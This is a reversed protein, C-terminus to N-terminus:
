SRGPTGEPSRDWEERWLAELIRGRAGQGTVRPPDGASPSGDVHIGGHGRRKARYMARDARDVLEKVSADPREAIAVGVSATLLATRKADIPIPEAFAAVLRDAVGRAEDVTNFSECLAGFEDGGIRALMDAPRIALRMRQSARILVNDGVQHGHRDNVQKFHDLDVYLLALISPQRRLRALALEANEFLAVRNHVGTLPDHVVDFSLLAERRKQESIDLAVMVLDAPREPDHASAIRLELWQDSGAGELEVEGAQLTDRVRRLHTLLRQREHAAFVDLWDKEGTIPASGFLGRWALNADIPLLQDDLRIVAVPFGDLEPQFRRDTV